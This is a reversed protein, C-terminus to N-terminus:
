IRRGVVLPYFTISDLDFDAGDSNMLEFTWYRSKVGLALKVRVTHLTSETPARLSYLHEKDDDTITKLTLDGSQKIGLYMYHVRKFLETDFDMTGLTITAEIDEGNDDNSDLTYVGDEQAGYYTNGIKAFSNFNYNEYTTVAYTNANVVHALLANIIDLSESFTVSDTLNLTYVATAALSETFTISDTLTAYTTRTEALTDSFTVSDTLALLAAVGPSLSESFTVSDTLNITVVLAFSYRGNVYAYTTLYTDEGYSGDIVLYQVLMNLPLKGGMAKAFPYVTNKWVQVTSATINGQYGYGPINAGWTNVSALGAGGASGFQQHLM